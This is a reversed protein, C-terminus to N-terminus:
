PPAALSQRPSRGAPAPPPPCRWRAYRRAVCARRAAAPRASCRRTVHRRNCLRTSLSRSLQARRMHMHTHPVPHRASTFNTRSTRERSQIAHTVTDHARHPSPAITAPANALRRGRCCGLCGDHARHPCRRGGRSSRLGPDFRSGRVASRRRAVTAGRGAGWRSEGTHLSHRRHRSVRWAARALGGPHGRRWARRRARPPTNRTHPLTASKTNSSM